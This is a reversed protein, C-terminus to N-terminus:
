PNAETLGALGFLNQAINAALQLSTRHRNGVFLLWPLKSARNQVGSQSNKLSQIESARVSRV